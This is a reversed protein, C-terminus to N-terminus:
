PRVCTAVVDSITVPCAGVLCSDSELDEEHAFRYLIGGASNIAIRGDCSFNGNTNILNLSGDVYRYLNCSSTVLSLNGASQLVVLYLDGTTEDIVSGRICGGNLSVPERIDSSGERVLLSCVPPGGSATLDIGRNISIFLRDRVSDYLLLTARNEEGIQEWSGDNVRCSIGTNHSICTFPDSGKSYAVASEGRFNTSAPSIDEWDREPKKRYFGSQYNANLCNAYLINTDKDLTPTRCGFPQSGSALSTATKESLDLEVIDTSSGFLNSTGFYLRSGSADLIASKISQGEEGEYEYVTDWHGDGRTRFIKRGAVHYLLDSTGDFLLIGDTLGQEAVSLSRNSDANDCLNSAASPIPGPLRDADKCGLFSLLIFLLLKKV